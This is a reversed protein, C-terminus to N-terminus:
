EVAPRRPLAVRAADPHKRYVFASRSVVIPTGVFTETRRAAPKAAASKVTAQWADDWGCTPPVAPTEPCSSAAAGVSAETAPAPPTTLPPVPPAGAAPPAVPLAPPAGPMPAPPLPAVAPAPPVSVPYKTEGSPLSAFGPVILAGNWLMVFARSTTRVTLVLM